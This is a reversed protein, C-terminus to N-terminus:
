VVKEFWVEDLEDYSCSFKAILEDGDRVGNTIDPLEGSNAIFEAIMEPVLSSDCANNSPQCRGNCSNKKLPRIRKQAVLEGKSNIFNNEVYRWRTGLCTM